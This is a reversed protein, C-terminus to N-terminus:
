KFSVGVEPQGPLGDHRVYVSQGAVVPSQSFAGLSLLDGPKLSIGQAKLAKALWLVANMPHGLIASGPGSALTKGTSVKTVVTMYGLANAMALANGPNVAIPAGLVGLRAGVNNFVLAPATLKSPDAVM